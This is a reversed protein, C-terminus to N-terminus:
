PLKVLYLRSLLFEVILFLLSILLFPPFMEAASTFSSIEIKSKELGDIENYIDSLTRNDTARFYKGGTMSSIRKLLAEDIEVPAMVTRRGMYTDVPIPAEGRTGVGVTYIKINYDAAIQSATEPDVEGANNVGDTLLIMVRSKTPSDKLRNIGNAIANGIATGDAIIGNKISGLLNKLVPYDMTMPCQTLAERSFVVLGIKDSVRKSIFNALVDKAAELRNPQLDMAMMSGSVDLVLAIDIGEANIQKSNSFDQPRALAFIIFVLAIMRLFFPLHILREKFSIPITSYESLGPFPVKPEKKKLNFFYFYTIVPIILLLWFMGPYKFVINEFM